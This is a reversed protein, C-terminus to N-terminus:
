GYKCLGYKSSLFSCPILELSSLFLPYFVLPLFLLVLVLLNNHTDKGNVAYKPPYLALVVKLHRVHFAM